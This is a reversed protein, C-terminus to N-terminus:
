PLQALSQFYSEKFSNARMAANDPQNARYDIMVAKSKTFAIFIFASPIDGKNRTALEASAYPGEIRTNLLATSPYRELQGALEHRKVAIELELQKEDSPSLDGFRRALVYIDVRDNRDNRYEVSFERGRSHDLYQRMRGRVLGEIRAPFPIGEIEQSSEQEVYDKGRFATAPSLSLPLLFSLLALIMGPSRVSSTRTAITM